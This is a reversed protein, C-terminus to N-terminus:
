KTFGTYVSRAVGAGIAEVKSNPTMNFTGGKLRAHDGSHSLSSPLGQETLLRTLEGQVAAGILHRNVHDFGHLVLEEIYLDINQKMVM